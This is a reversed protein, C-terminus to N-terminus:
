MERVRSAYVTTFCCRSGTGEAPSLEYKIEEREELSNHDWEIDSGSSIASNEHCGQEQALDLEDISSIESSSM